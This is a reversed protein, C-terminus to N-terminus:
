FQALFRADNEFMMRLDDIGYRLMALREVGMGFAYGTVEKPDYGAATFVNPHVMGSGLVELWGTQKCVRCGKGGCSACTVDVEASPETFPFFSPRFRTRTESGFFAKVFADLTGKLEAFSVDKDVLLGEVQHFMPTHTIDSDRRYVRGPMVARIPPKRSLMHRVQVPSTHTRLLSPSDAKKAHGLSPEDVYFTDQMDRAPHDKPLNLAEFNFYDLEIEPGVAVEFGLRAFTRVIDELTRSVPHRGGPLVARGPLTVDLRPGKLQAELAADEARKTADALLQELEAKVSNAVEGLARREEPPLKGMGGLVASLEGKKGLYRIRLAEVQSPESVGSIEQRAADALAQLRDRM